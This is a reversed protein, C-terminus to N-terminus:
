MIIELQLVLINELCLNLHAFTGVATLLAVMILVYLILTLEVTTEL